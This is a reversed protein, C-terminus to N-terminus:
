KPITIAIPENRVRWIDKERRQLVGVGRKSESVARESKLRPPTRATAADARASTPLFRFAGAFYGGCRAM